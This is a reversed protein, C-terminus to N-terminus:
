NAKGRVKAEPLTPKLISDGRQIRDFLTPMNGTVKHYYERDRGEAIMQRVLKELKVPEENIKKLREPMGCCDYAGKKLLAALEAEDKPLSHLYSYYMGVNLVRHGDSNSIPHANALRLLEKIKDQNSVSFSIEIADPPYAKIDVLLEKRYRFPHALALFGGRARVLAHLDAYKWGPNKELSPEQFGIVVFEEKEATNVEIGQFVRFPAFKKNLEEVRERAIYKDHDTFVLGDLGYGAAARVMDEECDVACASREKAHVHCDIKM